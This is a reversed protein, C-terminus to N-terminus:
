IKLSHPFYTVGQIHIKSIDGIWSFTEHFYLYLYSFVFLLFCLIYRANISIIVKTYVFSAQIKTFSSSTYKFLQELLICTIIVNPAMKFLISLKLHYVNFVLAGLIMWVFKLSDNVFKSSKLEIIKTISLDMVM